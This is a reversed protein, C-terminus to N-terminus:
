LADGAAARFRDRQTEIRTTLAAPTDAPWAGVSDYAQVYWATWADVVRRELEADEGARAATVAHGLRVYAHHDVANLMEDLDEPAESAMSIGLGGFASAVRRMEAGSVRDIRDLTTHYASDTFHWGLVAPLGRELFPVHDSGGEFPNERYTFTGPVQAAAANTLANLFHGRLQSEQVDGQGWESHEDPARLWVAGPDPMREILFPAGVIDPDQGVMDLVLGAGPTANSSELWTRAIEMEQGWLFVMPRRPRPLEGAEIGARMSRALEALAAVGSGNDNAGPEDVHAVYVVAGHSQQGDIRAEIAGARSRGIAVDVQVRVRAPGSETAARLRRWVRDSLSFGLAPGEHEPLYGFQAADPFRDPQHYSELNRVLIGRAGASSAAEFVTRPSGDALVLRGRASAGAQVQELRVVELETAPTADSGVLLTGRDPEAENDFGILEAEEDGLLTLHAARPTWTPREEGLALMQVHSTDFGGESLERQVRELTKVYGLNGRVRFYREVYAVTAHAREADFRQSVAAVHAALRPVSLAPAPPPPAPQRQAAVSRPATPDSATGGCATLFLTFFLVHQVRM